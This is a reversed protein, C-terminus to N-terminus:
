DFCAVLEGQTRPDPEFRLEEALGHYRSRLVVNEDVYYVARIDWRDRSDVSSRGTGTTLDYRIAVMVADPNTASGVAAVRGDTRRLDVTRAEAGYQGLFANHQYAREFTTVYEVMTDDLSSPSSPYTRPELPADDPPDPDPRNVDDCEFWDAPVTGSDLPPGTPGDSAYEFGGTTVAVTTVVSALFGRRPRLRNM